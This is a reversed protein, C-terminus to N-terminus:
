SPQKTQLPSGFFNVTQPLFLSSPSISLHHQTILRSCTKIVERSGSQKDSYSITRQQGGNVFFFFRRVTSDLLHLDRTSSDPACNLARSPLKEARHHLHARRLSATSMQLIHLQNEAFFYPICAACTAQVM